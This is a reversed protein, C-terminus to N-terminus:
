KKRFEKIRNYLWRAPAYLIQVKENWYKYWCFLIYQKLFKYSYFPDQAINWIMTRYALYMSIKKHINICLAKLEHSMRITPSSYYSPIDMIEDNELLLNNEKCVEYLRTRKYPTFFSCLGGDPKILKNLKLTEKMLDSTEFPFGIMNFCVVSLGAKKLMTCKELLMKNSYGRNLYKKRFAENGQELGIQLVKCGSMALATVIENDINEARVNAYYPIKVEDRYRKAFEMFWKKKAILLDDDIRFVEVEPYEAKLKKLLGIAWDVSPLRLYGHLSDYVSVMASNCCYTCNYPCGRGLMLIVRKHRIVAERPFVSYDPYELKDLSKVFSPSSKKVPDFDQSFLDKNKRWVFGRTEHINNGEQLAALLEKLPEEGEGVCVADVASYKLVTLPELTCAPGGAVQFIGLETISNSYKELFKIKHSTVSFGVILDNYRSKLYKLRLKFYEQPIESTLRICFVDYGSKRAIPVLYAIGNNVGFCGSDINLDVFVFAKNM